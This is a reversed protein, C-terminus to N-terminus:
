TTLCKGHLMVQVEMVEPHYVVMFQEGSALVSVFWDDSKEFIMCEKGKKQGEVELQLTARVQTLSIRRFQLLRAQVEKGENFLLAKKKAKLKFLRIILYIFIAAILLIFGVLIMKLESFNMM